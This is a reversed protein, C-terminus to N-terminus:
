NALGRSLIAAVTDIDAPRWLYREVGPCRGLAELWREQDPTPGVGAAGGKVGLDRKLEAFIVRPPRVLVLDPFGAPSHKSRYTHYRLWGFLAALQKVHGDLEAETM